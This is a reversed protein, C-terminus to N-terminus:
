RKKFEQTLWEEISAIHTIINDVGNRWKYHRSWRQFLLNDITMTEIVANIPLGDVRNLAPYFYAMDLPTDPYSIPIEIAITAKKTNYGDPIFFEYLVLWSIGNQKFTEWLPFKKDLMETEDEPFIFEKRNQYNM